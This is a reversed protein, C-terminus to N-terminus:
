PYQLNVTASISIKSQSTFNNSGIMGLRLVVRVTGFGGAHTVNFFEMDSIIIDKGSVVVPNNDGEKIRLQGDDIDIITPNKAADKMMLSLSSSASYSVPSQITEAESIIQQLKETLFQANYQLEEQIKVNVRGRLINVGIGGILAIMIVSLSLYLLIEILTFGQNTNINKNM